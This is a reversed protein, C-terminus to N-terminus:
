IKTDRDTVIAGGVHDKTTETALISYVIIKELGDATCDIVTSCGTLRITGTRFLATFAPGAGDIQSLIGFVQILIVFFVFCGELRQDIIKTSSLIVPANRGPNGSIDFDRVLDAEVRVVVCVVIDADNKGVLVVYEAHHSLTFVLFFGM